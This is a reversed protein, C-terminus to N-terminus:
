SWGAPRLGAAPARRFPSTASRRPRSATVNGGAAAAASGKPGPSEVPLPPPDDDAEVGLLALVQRGPMPRGVLFGQAETCGEVRIRVLQEETEIGEAVTQMGLARALGLAARVIATSDERVGLEEIFAKDIKIKDFPFRRMYSLSSYGTGFDDMSIRVGKARMAELTAITSESDKIMVSETLEIILRKAPLGADDLAQFVTQSLAPTKFQIASVNVAVAVTEPWKAAQRCAERLVQEGIRVILGNEEALPVFDGPGITGRVPHRWRVLAEFSTVRRDIADVIPQYHVEFQGEALAVKLDDEMERRLRFEDDMKAQFFRCGGRDAKAHCLALDALRVVEDPNVGDDPALAIGISAGIAIRVGDIEFPEAVSAILRDALRAADRPVVTVRQIVVFEDAGLRAATDSKRVAGSIRAAVAQLLRDGAPHGLADNVPKFRDLDLYLIAFRGARRAAEALCQELRQRFGFRNLLGTLADHTAMAKIKDEAERQATIDEHTSVWGGDKLNKKRQAILRGDPLKRVVLVGGDPERSPKDIPKGFRQPDNAARAAGPARGPHALELPLGYIEAYRRNCVILAGTRDYMALGQVINDMANNFRAHQIAAQAQVAERERAAALQEVRLALLGAGVLIVAVIAAAGLELTEAQFRWAALVDDMALAVVSAVPFRESNVVAFMREIHDVDSVQREVGDRKKSILNAFIPTDAIASGLALEKAPYCAIIEGDDRIVSVSAHEGLALRGLLDAFPALNVVGSVIGLFAGNPASVRKALSLQWAGTTRSRFPSSVYVADSPANEVASLQERVHIDTLTLRSDYRDDASPRASEVYISDLSGDEAVSDELLARFETVNAAQDLAAPTDVRAAQLRAALRAVIRSVSQLSRDTEDALITALSEAARSTTDIQRAKLYAIFAFNGAVVIFVLLVAGLILVYQRRFAQAFNGLTMM